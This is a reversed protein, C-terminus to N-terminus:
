KEQRGQSNSDRYASRSHTPKAGSYSCRVAGPLQVVKFFLGFLHMRGYGRIYTAIFARDFMRLHHEWSSSSLYQLYLSGNSSSELDVFALELSITEAVRYPLVAESSERFLM